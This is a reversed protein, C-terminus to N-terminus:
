PIIANLADFMRQVVSVVRAAAAYSQQFLLLSSMEEDLNVGRVNDSKTKLSEFLTRSLDAILNGRM